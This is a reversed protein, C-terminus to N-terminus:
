SRIEQWAWVIMKSAGVLTFIVLALPWLLAWVAAQAMDIGHEAMAVTGVLVAPLLGCLYLITLQELM